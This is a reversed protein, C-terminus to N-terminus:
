CYHATLRWKEAREGLGSGTPFRVGPRAANFITQPREPLFICWYVDEKHGTTDSTKTEKCRNMKM